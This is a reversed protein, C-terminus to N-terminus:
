ILLISKLPNVNVHMLISLVQHRPRPRPTHHSVFAGTLKGGAITAHMSHIGQMQGLVGEEEEWM